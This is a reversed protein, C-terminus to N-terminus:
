LTQRVEEKTFSEIIDGVKLDNFKEFSLGCEMGARVEKVDDKFRKLASIPGEYIVVNDRLLRVAGKRYISGDTVFCGAANGIGSIRFVERVEAHGAVTERMMPRLLGEMAKIVDDILDYIINYFRIEIHERKALDRAKVDARVNFGVVIANSAVALMIDSETIGGVGTHIVHVGIKEHSIKQLAENVAEVSGQVDGKVVIKLETTDGQKIQEFIDGLKNSEEKVQDKERQQNQRFEAIERARREDGVVVLEDGAHPVGSLGVVEVPTSPVAQQLAGGKDDFLGRIKGWESGVVFVDGVRLTGSQVLCTAVAGRGKDLNSEIIIGRARGDPNARLSLVESQLLIMEQLLDIGEKTRASVPVYITDGGWQEPVLGRNSLQQMVHDPNADPKDIKNLAVLIPVKADRAHNIAELTQPMVGDDAAVVLVVLDTVKAGRARMATFAEHGPTDLFTIRNGGALLVQYAGIHQTIGGFEGSTVDTQRIADLLSTKGHDVHGMVTVIPPRSVTTQEDDPADTLESEIAASESVQKAKHGMETVILVATEQDLVQNITAMVGQTMLLRIVESVKVAMRNALDSVTITDPVIVERVVMAPPEARRDRSRRIRVPKRVVVGDEEGADDDGAQIHRGIKSRIVGIGMRHVVEDIAMAGRREDDLRKQARLEEVQSLRKSVLDDTKKRAAEERQQKSLKRKDDPKEPLAGAAAVFPKAAPTFSSAPSGHAAPSSKQYGAAGQASFRPQSGPQSGPQSSSQSGQPSSVPEREKRFVSGAKKPPQYAKRSADTTVEQRSPPAVAVPQEVSDAPGGGSLSPGGAPGDDAKPDVPKDSSAAASVPGEQQSSVDEPDAPEQEVVPQGVAVTSSTETEPASPQSVVEDSRQEVAVPTPEDVPPAVVSEPSEIGPEAKVFTRKRRVEVVVSKSRGHSFNQKISGGEVTKKLVIRRPIKLKLKEDSEDVLKSDDSM